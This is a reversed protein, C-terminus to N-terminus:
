KDQNFLDLAEGKKLTIIAKKYASTFGDFRGVRKPKSRVNIINVKEVKKNFLNQFALKIQTANADKAVRLTIKNQDQMLKMSKETVIPKIIVGLDSLNNTVPLVLGEVKEVKKTKAM